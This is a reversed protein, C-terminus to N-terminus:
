GLGIGGANLQPMDIDPLAERASGIDILLPVIPHAYPTVSLEIQGLRALKAYRGTVGHLTEWILEMLRRRDDNSFGQGKAQMSRIRLDNVRTSEGMWAMHYWVMLDILFQDGLYPLMAPNELTHKALGVLESFHKFRHILRQENARLCALIIEKRSADDVPLGPGALAALLPDQILIGRDLWARIQRAYDEIQELLVPAFNVVVRAMPHQELHFVMDAYDKIGHLYVWPLQYDSKDPGKYYPQHMHWCFVVQLRPSHNDSM